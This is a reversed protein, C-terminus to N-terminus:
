ANTKRKLSFSQAKEAAKSISTIVIVAIATVIIAYWLMAAVSSQEGFTNKFIQQVATNWALAAVLAFSAIMFESLKEVMGTKM